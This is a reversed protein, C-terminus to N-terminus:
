RAQGALLPIWACKISAIRQPDSALTSFFAAFLNDHPVLEMFPLMANCANQVGDPFRLGRCLLRAFGEYSRLVYDKNFPVGQGPLRGTCIDSLTAFVTVRHLIADMTAPTFDRERLLTTGRDLLVWVFTAWCTPSMRLNKGHKAEPSARKSIFILARCALLLLRSRAPDPM